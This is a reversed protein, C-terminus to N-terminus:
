IVAYYQVLDKEKILNRSTSSGDQKGIFATAPFHLGQSCKVGCYPKHLCTRFFIWEMTHVGQGVQDTGWGAPPGGSRTGRLEKTRVGPSQDPSTDPQRGGTGSSRTKGWSPKEGPGRVGLSGGSNQENGKTHKRHPVQCLVKIRFCQWNSFNILVM